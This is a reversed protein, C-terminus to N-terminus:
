IRLSSHRAFFLPFSFNIVALIKSISCSRKCKIKKLFKKSSFFHELACLYFPIVLVFKPKLIKLLPQAKQLRFGLSVHLNPVWLFMRKFDVGLM